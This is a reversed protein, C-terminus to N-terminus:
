KRAAIKQLSLTAAQAFVGDTGGWSQFAHELAPVSKGTGIEGLIRCAEFRAAADTSEVFPLVAEEAAPGLSQLAKGASVREPPHTLELALAQAARPDQLSGLIEIICVHREEAGSSFEGLMRLLAPTNEPTGWAKIAELADASIAPNADLLLTNLALSVKARSADNPRLRALYQLAARVRPVRGDALDAVTRDLQDEAPVKLLRALRRAEKRVEESPHDFRELVARTAVSGLKLLAAAARARTPPNSLQLAIAEAATPDSFQSLVDILVANGAEARPQRRTYEVLAPLCDRTAWLKLAQLAQSQIETSGDALLPLLAKAVRGKISEDGPSNERLWALASLRTDIQSSQLRHLAEEAITQTPTEYGALLRSALLRTNPDNDFLCNLVAREAPRGTVELAAFAQDRLLPDSLMGALFEGARADQIKGLAEIVMSSKKRDWCPPTPAQVMRILAPVNEPGAWALYVRLLLNPDLEGATDKELLMPELVATVRARQEDQPAMGALCEFAQRSREPDNGKLDALTSDLASPGLLIVLILLAVFLLLGGGICWPLLRRLRGEGTARAFSPTEGPVSLSL